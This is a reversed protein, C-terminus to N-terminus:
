VKYFVGFRIVVCGYVESFGGLCIIVVILICEM